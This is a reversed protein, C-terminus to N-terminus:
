FRDRGFRQSGRTRVNVPEYNLGIADLYDGARGTFGVARCGAPVEVRYQREGGGGGFRQSTRKNTQITISDLFEGYRGSIATIYEDPDLRFITPAGGGGGHVPGELITGNRLTYVAQISDINRGARVRIESIRAGPPINQESFISGGRGGAIVTQNTQSIPVFTFGIADLYDGARGIFGIAQNGRELNIQYDRDGGRGGYVPSTRKNTRIQLSDIYQGYRGSIGVVYEDSDLRFVNMQGGGGGHRPGTFSSGDPLEYIMQVADVANGSYVHIESVRAGYPVQVDSFPTGGRGGATTTSSPQQGLSFMTIGLLLWILMCFKYFPLRNMAAGMPVLTPFCLIAGLRM